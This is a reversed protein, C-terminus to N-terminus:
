GPALDMIYYKNIWPPSCVIPEARVEPTQPEYALLEIMRDRLVVRGPTAALNGGVRFPSTDVQRPRGGNTAVDDLFQALGRSLSRGGSDIAEKVVAPNLFPINSPALADLLLSTAFRAKRATEPPLDVGAVLERAWESFALYSEATGRLAAND